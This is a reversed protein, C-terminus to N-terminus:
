AVVDVRTGTPVRRMLWRIDARRFRVCGSSAAEGVIDGPTGHLALRDGGAWGQPLDKQRGTLALICCGYPSTARETVIRDTIAYRAVPTPSSSRGVTVPFRAVARGDYRVRARRESRDVAIEWRSHVTRVADAPLWGARGNPLSPHLVGVWGPRHGVVVLLQRSNFDTRRGIVGVRPGAPRRRLLARRQVLAAVGRVPVVATSGAPVPPLAADELAPRAPLVPALPPRTDLRGAAPGPEAARSASRTAAADGGPRDAGAVVAGGVASLAALGLAIPAVARRM